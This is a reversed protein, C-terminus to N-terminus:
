TVGTLKDAMATLPLTAATLAAAIPAFSKRMHYSRLINLLGGQEDRINEPKNYIHLGLASDASLVRLLSSPQHVCLISAKM